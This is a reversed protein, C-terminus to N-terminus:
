ALYEIGTLKFATNPYNTATEPIVLKDKVWVKVSSTDTTLSPLSLVPSFAVTSPLTGDVDLAFLLTSISFISLDDVASSSTYNITANILINSVDNAIITGKYVNNLVLAYGELANITLGSISSACKSGTVTQGASNTMSNGSTFIFSMDIYTIAFATKDLDESTLLLTDYAWQDERKFVVSTYSTKEAGFVGGFNLNLRNIPIAILTETAGLARSCVITSTSLSYDTGIVLKTHLGTTSNYRYLHEMAAGTMSTLYFTTYPTIVNISSRTFKQPASIPLTCADDKYVNIGM